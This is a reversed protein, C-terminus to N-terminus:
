EKEEKVPLTDIQVTVTIYEAAVWGTAGDLTAVALWNGEANRGLLDLQDGSMLKARIGYTTAPGGRLNLVDANVMGRVVVLTPTATPLEVTPTVMGTITTTVTVTASLVATAPLTETTLVARTATPPGPTYTPSLTHTAPVGLSTEGRPAHPLVLAAVALLVGTAVLALVVRALWSPCPSLRFIGKSLGQEEKRGRGDLESLRAQLIRIEEKEVRLQSQLRGLVAPPAESEAVEKAEQELRELNRKRIRLRRELDARDAGAM